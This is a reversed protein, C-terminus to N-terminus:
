ETSTFQERPRPEPPGMSRGLDALLQLSLRRLAEPELSQIYAADIQQLSHRNLHM